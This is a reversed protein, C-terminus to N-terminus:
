EAYGRVAVAYTASYRIHGSDPDPLSGHGAFEQVWYCRAGGLSQDEGAAYLHARTLEALRSARPGSLAWAEVIVTAEDTVLNRRQGGIRNVRVFESPRPDPITTSVEIGAFEGESVLTLATRYHTIIAAEVDPFTIIEAM